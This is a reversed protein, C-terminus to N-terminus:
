WGIYAVEFSCVRTGHTILLVIRDDRTEASTQVTGNLSFGVRLGALVILHVIQSADVRGAGHHKSGISGQASAEIGIDIEVADGISLAHAPMGGSAYRKEAM